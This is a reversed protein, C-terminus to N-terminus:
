KPSAAGVETAGAGGLLRRVYAVTAHDPDGSVMLLKDHDLAYAFPGIAPTRKFMALLESGHEAHLAIMVTKENQWVIVGAPAARPDAHVIREGTAAVSAWLDAGTWAALAEGARPARAAPTQLDEPLSRLDVLAGGLIADFAGPFMAAPAGLLIALNGDIALEAAGYTRAYVLASTNVATHVSELAATTLGVHMLLVAGTECSALHYEATDSTTCAGLGLGRIRRDIEATPIERLRSRFPWRGGRRQAGRAAGLVLGAAVILAGVVRLRRRTALPLARRALPGERTRQTHSPPAETADVPASASERPPLAPTANTPDSAVAAPARDIGSALAPDLARAAGPAARLASAAAVRMARGLAAADAYRDVPRLALARQLVPELAGVDVGLTRPTPRVPDFLAFMAAGQSGTAPRGSVLEVFLLALAHVDTWPGTRARALQEPAAYRPTFATAGSVTNTEGTGATDGPAVIKAIGFDVVRPQLAGESTDSALLVNSPKLDRHAVGQAHAHEMADLLPEFIRWAADLPLPVGERAALHQELTPGGCWEMVLYPLRAGDSGAPLLGVDLAAVINPHRLRKLTRAEELFAGCLTALQDARLQEPLKLVKLAVPAGLIVHFAAYVTGFGGAGVARDVRYRGDILTGVLPGEPAEIMAGM